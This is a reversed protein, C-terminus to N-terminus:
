YHVNTLMKGKPHSFEFQLEWIEPIFCKPKKMSRGTVCGVTVQRNKMREIWFIFYCVKRKTARCIPTGFSPMHLSSGKGLTFTLLKLFLDCTRPFRLKELLTPLLHSSFTVLLGKPIIHKRVFFNITEVPIVWSRKVGISCDPKWSICCIAFAM